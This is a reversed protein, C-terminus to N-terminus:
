PTSKPTFTLVVGPMFDTRGNKGILFSVDSGVGISIVEDLRFDLFVGGSFFAAAYFGDGTAGTGLGLRLRFTAGLPKPEIRIASALAIPAVFRGGEPDNVFWTGLAGGLLLPGGGFLLDAVAGGGLEPEGGTLSGAGVVAHGSVSGSPESAAARTPLLGVVLALALGLRVIV